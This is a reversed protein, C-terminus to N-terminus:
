TSLARYGALLIVLVGIVVSTWVAATVASFFIFPAIVAVAGALVALWEEWRREDGTIADYAAVVAVVVGIVLSTWMAATEDSYGLIWPAIALAVGLLAILWSM